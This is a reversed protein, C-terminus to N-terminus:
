SKEKNSPYRNWWERYEFYPSPGLTGLSKVEYSDAVQTARYGRWMGYTLLWWWRVLRARLQSM